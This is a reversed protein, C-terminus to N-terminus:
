RDEEMAELREALLDRMRRVEGEDLDEDEVLRMLLLEPSGSFLKRTIRRLASEGAEEREVLPVYRHARGEEEHTVHGKEELIRLVTLVTNYALEDDLARRVEAVTSPGREWLVAMVDLERATFRIDM